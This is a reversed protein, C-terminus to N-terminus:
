RYDGNADKLEVTAGLVFAARAIGYAEERSETSLAVVRGGDGFTELKFQFNSDRRHQIRKFMLERVDDRM